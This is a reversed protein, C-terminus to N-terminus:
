FSEPQAIARTLAMFGQQFHTTAISLWRPDTLMKSPTTPDGHNQDAMRQLVGGIDNALAKVANISHITEPSLQRYGTIPQDSM